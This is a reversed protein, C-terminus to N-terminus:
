AAAPVTYRFESGERPFPQPFSFGLALRANVATPRVSLRGVSQKCPGVEGAFRSCRRFSGFFRLPLAYAELSEKVVEVNEQSM